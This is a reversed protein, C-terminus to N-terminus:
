NSKEANFNNSVQESKEKNYSSQMINGILAFGFFLGFFWKLFTKM